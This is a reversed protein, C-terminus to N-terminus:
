LPAIPEGTAPSTVTSRLRRTAGPRKSEAIRALAPNDITAALTRARDQASPVGLAARHLDARVVFDPQSTRAALEALRAVDAVARPLEAAVTVRCVADQVWAHIWVYRDHRQQARRGAEELWRMAQPLNGRAFAVLGLGRAAMGQWCWDGLVLSLSWADRLREEAEAVRGGTLDLEALIADMWPLMAIWREEIAMQACQDAYEAAADLEERQMLSRSAISISWAAQRLRGGQEALQASRLLARLARGHQGRDALFMGEIGHVSSLARRDDGAAAVAASLLRRTPEVRGGANEVFALDRLAEAALSRDGVRRALRAAEHLAQRGEVAHAALAHVLGAGLAFLATAQLREDPRAAALQVADRLHELGAPVAGAAMAAQGAQIRCTVEADPRRRHHGGNASPEALLRELRLERRIWGSWERLQALAAAHDGAAVLSSVLAARGAPQHPENVVARAAATVAASPEGAALARDTAGRLRVGLATAVRHRAATLWLDFDPGALGDADPLLPESLGPWAAEGDRSLALDRAAPDGILEVVDVQCAPDLRVQVPDGDALVRGGFGRRLQSLTWRLAGLPDDADPFLLEALSHRSPAREALLLVALLAWAKRGRPGPVRRGDLDAAPRGLLRINLVM